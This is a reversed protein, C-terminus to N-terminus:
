QVIYIYMYPRYKDIILCLYISCYHTYNLVIKKKVRVIIFESFILSAYYVSQLTALLDLDEFM